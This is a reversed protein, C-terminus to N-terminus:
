SKEAHTQETLQRWNLGERLILLLGTVIVPLAGILHFLITIAVSADIDFFYFKTLVIQCLKDFGGVSGPTPVALGVTTIGTVFFSSDYPLPRRLAELVFWFQATLCTWVLFTYLLVRAAASPKRILDLSAVFSDYFRMWAVRFRLPLLRGLTEHMRRVAGRFFYIGAVLLLLAALAIGAGIAGARVIRFASKTRPDTSLSIWHVACYYVFMGLIATLDLVRETLVTGLADAFGINTRRSLLAPRAVDAARIPLLTSLMYGITNAFFTPYFPPLDDSRLITRWRQTRFTLAGLNIALAGAVYWPNSTRLISWVDHLNSNWFFLGLLM